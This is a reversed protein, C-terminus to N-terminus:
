ATRPGILRGILAKELEVLVFVGVAFASIKGWDPLALPATRFLFQMAPLYTFLMQAVAVLGISLLVPRSGFLGSLTWAPDHIRRCNVLYVAEG